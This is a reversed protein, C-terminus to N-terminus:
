SILNVNLKKTIKNITQSIAHEFVNQRRCSIIFFNDNLYQYFPLQDEITDERRRIHYQALRAVKYHDVTQL